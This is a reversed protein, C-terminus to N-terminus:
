GSRRGAFDPPRIPADGEVRMRVHALGRIRFSKALDMLGVLDQAVRVPAAGVVNLERDTAPRQRRFRESRLRWDRDQVVKQRYPWRDFLEEIV